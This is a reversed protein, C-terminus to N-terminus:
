RSPWGDWDLNAKNFEKIGFTQQFKLYCKYQIGELFVVCIAKGQLDYMYLTEMQYWESHCKLAM